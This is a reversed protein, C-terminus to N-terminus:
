GLEKKVMSWDEKLQKGLKQAVSSTVERDNKFEEIVEDVLKKYQSESLKKGVNKLSAIKEDIRARADDYSKEVNNVLDETVKKLQKRTKEGSQPALLIGAVAGLAVGTLLGGVYTGVSCDKSM